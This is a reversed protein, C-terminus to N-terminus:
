QEATVTDSKSATGTRSYRGYEENIQEIVQSLQMIRQDSVEDLQAITDKLLFYHKLLTKDLGFNYSLEETNNRYDMLNVQFQKKFNLEFYQMRKQAIDKNNHREYYLQGITHAFELSKNVLPKIVPIVQQQRKAYVFIMLTVAIITLYFSVNLAENERIFSLPRLQTQESKFLYAYPKTTEDWIVREINGTNAHSLTNAAYDQLSEYLIANNTFVEPHSLIFYNGQGRPYRLFNSHNNIAGIELVNDLSDPQFYYRAYEGRINFLTSDKQSYVVAPYLSDIALSNYRNFPGNSVETNDESFKKYENYQRTALFVQAGKDVISDLLAQEEKNFSLFDTVFVIATQEAPVDRLVTFLSDQVSQVQADPFIDKLQEYLVYAGHPNKDFRSYTYRWSPQRPVMLIALATLVIVALLIYPFFRNNM